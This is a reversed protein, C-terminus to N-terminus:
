VLLITPLTLHRYSVSITTECREQFCWIWRKRASLGCRKMPSNPTRPMPAWAPFLLSYLGSCPWYQNVRWPSGGEFWDYTEQQFHQDFFLLKSDRRVLYPKILHHLYRRVTEVRYRSKDTFLRDFSEQSHPPDTILINLESLWWITGMYKQLLENCFPM